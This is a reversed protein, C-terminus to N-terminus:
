RDGRPQDGLHVERVVRQEVEVWDELRHGLVAPVPQDGAVVMGHGDLVPCETVPPVDHQAARSCRRSLSRARHAAIAERDVLADLVAQREQELNGLTYAHDIQHIELRLGYVPTYAVSVLLLLQLNRAFAVGTAKEFAKLIPYNKRWIVAELKALTQNGEREVLGLFCYQRDPYNKIDSTEALVWMAKGGFNEDFVADITFALDSLRIPSM